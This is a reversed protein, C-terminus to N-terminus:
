QSLLTHSSPPSWYLHTIKGIISCTHTLKKILCLINLSYSYSREISKRELKLILIIFNIDSGNNEIKPRCKKSRDVIYGFSYFSNHFNM